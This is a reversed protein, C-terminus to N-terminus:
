DYDDGEDDVGELRKLEALDPLKNLPYSAESHGCIELMDTDLNIIYNWEQYNPEGDDDIELEMKNEYVKDLM